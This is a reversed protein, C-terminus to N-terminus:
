FGGDLKCKILSLKIFIYCLPCLNHRWEMAGHDGQCIGLGSLLASEVVPVCVTPTRSALHIHIHFKLSHQQMLGLTLAQRTFISLSKIFVVRLKGTKTIWVSAVPLLFCLIHTLFCFPIHLLFNIIMYFTQNIKCKVFKVNYKIYPLGYM